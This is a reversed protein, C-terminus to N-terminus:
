GEVFDELAQKYGARYAILVASGIDGCCGSSCRPKEYADDARTQVDEPVELSEHDKIM